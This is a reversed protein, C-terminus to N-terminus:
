CFGCSKGCTKRRVEMSYWTNQCFGNPIFSSCGQTDACVGCLGCSVGCTRRLFDPRQAYFPIDCFGEAAMKKCNARTDACVGQGNGAPPAVVVPAPTPVPAPPAVTAPPAPAATNSCANCTRACDQRMQLAFNLDLCLTAIAACDTRKDRCAAQACLGCTAPCLKAVLPYMSGSKDECLNKMTPCKDVYAPDDKCSFNPNECCLGCTKACTVTAANKFVDLDCQPDRSNKTLATKFATACNKDVDECSTASPLLTGDPAQCRLPPAPAAGGNGANGGAGGNGADPPTQNGPDAPAQDDALTSQLLTAVLITFILKKTYM